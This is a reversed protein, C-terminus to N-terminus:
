PNTTWTSMRPPWLRDSEELLHGQLDYDFNTTGTPTTKGVRRGPSDYQYSALTSTGQTVSGLRRDPDYNYTKGYSQTINGNADTVLTNPRAGTQTLLKESSLDYNYNTTASNKIDLKRNGVADYTYTFSNAGGASLLQNVPDYSYNVSNATTILDNATQLNGVPDYNYSLNQQTGVTQGSLRYNYDYSRNLTLGNGYILSNVPGFPLRNVNNVLTRTVNYGNTSFQGHDQDQVAIQKVQGTADYQYMVYRYNAINTETLRNSADYSYYVSNGVGPHALGYAFSRILNGQLDYYYQYYYPSGRESYTLRGLQNPTGSPAGDYYYDM